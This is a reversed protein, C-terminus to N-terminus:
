YAIGIAKRFTKEDTLHNVIFDAVDARSISLGGIVAEEEIRYKGTHKGNTLKPPRVITWDLDSENIVAEMRKLDDFINRLIKQVIYKQLFDVFFTQRPHDVYGSAGVAILRIVNLERMASIINAIGDTCLTTPQKVVNTGIASVVVETGDIAKRVSEADTVDAARKELRKGSLALAQPNRMVAVVEHGKELAQEVVKQGIGGTAGIVAIKM